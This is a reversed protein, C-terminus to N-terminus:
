LKGQSEAMAARDLKRTALTYYLWLGGQYLVTAAILSRYLIRYAMAVQKALEKLDMDQLLDMVQSFQARREPPMAMVIEKLRRIMEQVGRMIEQTDFLLLHYASYLIIAALLVLQSGALWRRAEPRNQKLRRRGSLEMCASAMAALGIL